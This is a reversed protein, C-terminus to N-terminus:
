MVENGWISIFGKSDGVYLNNNNNWFISTVEGRGNNNNITNEIEGKNLNIIYINGEKSGIAFFDKKPSISINSECIENLKNKNITYIEKEKRIDFLKIVNGKGLSLFTNDKIIKIDIIKDNHVKYVKSKQKGDTTWMNVIGDGHGSLIFNDNTPISLSYCESKYNIEQILKKTEFDWEKITKDSSGTLGREKLYFCKVCNIEKSHEAFNSVLSYNQSSFLKATSDYSGAFILHNNKNFDAESVTNNFKSFNYIESNKNADLLILRNDEGTTIYKTGIRNFSISTITKHHIKQKYELKSPLINGISKINLNIENKDFHEKQNNNEVGIYNDIIEINNKLNNTQMELVKTRLQELETHMQVSNEILQNHDIEMRQCSKNLKFIKKENEENIQNLEKNLKDLKMNQSKLASNEAQYGKIRKDQNEVKENLKMIKELNDKIEQLNQENQEKLKFYKDKLFKYDEDDNKDVKKETTEKKLIIKNGLRQNQEAGIQLDIYKMYLINYDEIMKDYAFTSKNLNELSSSIKQKLQEYPKINDNIEEM